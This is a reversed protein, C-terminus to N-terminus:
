EPPPMMFKVGTSESHSTFASPDALFDEGFRRVASDLDALDALVHATKSYREVSKLSAWRGRRRVTELSKTNKLVANAPGTHRLKHLVPAPIGMKDCVVKVCKFVTSRSVTFIPEGPPRTKVLELFLRAVWPKEVVVGQNPLTGSTKVSEGRSAVGFFLCVQPEGGPREYVCWDTPSNRLMEMDQERGFTDEQLFWWVASQRFKASPGELLARGIAACREECMGFGEIGPLMRQWGVCSRSFAHLSSMQNPFMHSWAAHLKSGFAPSKRQQYILDDVIATLIADLDQLNQPRAWRREQVGLAICQLAAQVVRNYEANTDDTVAHVMARSVVPLVDPHRVSLFLPQADDRAWAAAGRNRLPPPQLPSPM